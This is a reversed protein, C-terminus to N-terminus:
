LTKMFEILAMKADVSLRTGYSHGANSNGPIPENSGNEVQFLTAKGSVETTDFGVKIPDFKRNGVYFSKVRNQPEQLLEWLNPVSGNHLYPATAGEILIKNGNYNLQNTHCASCTLGLWARGTKQDFDPAFGIPLGGPNAASSDQPIFRLADMHDVNRFLQDSNARELHVFWTYPLIQSGQSTFWFNKRTKEDWNQDFYERIPISGDAPVVKLEENVVVTPNCGSLSLTTIVIYILIWSKINRNYLM